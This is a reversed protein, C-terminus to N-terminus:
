PDRLSDPTTPPTLCLGPQRSRADRPEGFRLRATAGNREVAPVDAMQRGQWSPPGEADLLELDKVRLDAVEQVRAGTNYLFQLLTRDRLALRGTAPLSAFVNQAGRPGPLANGASSRAEGSDHRHPASGPRMRSRSSRRIRLVRAPRRAASQAHPHSQTTKKGACRPVFAVQKCTLIRLGLRSIKKGTEEGVFRLFLVMGDRYSRVSGPRLGKQCTLYDRLIAMCSSARPPLIRSTVGKM